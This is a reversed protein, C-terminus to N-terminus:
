AMHLLRRQFATNNNAAIHAVSVTLAAAAEGACWWESAM